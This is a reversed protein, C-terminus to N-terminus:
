KSTAASPFLKKTEIGAFPCLLSYLVRVRYGGDSGRRSSKLIRRRNLELLRTSLWPLM